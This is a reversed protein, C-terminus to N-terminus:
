ALELSRRGRLATESSTWGPGPIQTPTELDPLIRKSVGLSGGDKQAEGTGQDGGAEPLDQAVQDVPAEHVDEDGRPGDEILVEVLRHPTTVPHPARIRVVETEPVEVQFRIYSVYTSSSLNSSVSRTMPRIVSSNGRRGAEERSNRPNRPERKGSGSDIRAVAARRPTGTKEGAKISLEIPM